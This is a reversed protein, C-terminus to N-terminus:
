LEFPKPTKSTANCILALVAEAEAILPTFKAKVKNCSAKVTSL